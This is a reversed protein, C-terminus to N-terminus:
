AEYIVILIEDGLVGPKLSKCIFSLKMLRISSIFFILILSLENFFIGNNILIDGSMSFSSKFLKHSVM